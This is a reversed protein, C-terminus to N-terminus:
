DLRFPLSHNFPGPKTSLGRSPSDHWVDWSIGFRGKLSPTLVDLPNVIAFDVRSDRHLVFHGDLLDFCQSWPRDHNTYAPGIFEFPSRELLPRGIKWPDV